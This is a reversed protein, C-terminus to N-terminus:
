GIGAACRTYTTRSYDGWMLAARLTDASAMSVELWRKDEPSPTSFAAAPAGVAQPAPVGEELHLELKMPARFSFHFQKDERATVVLAPADCKGSQMAWSGAIKTPIDDMKLPQATACLGGTLLALITAAEILRRM